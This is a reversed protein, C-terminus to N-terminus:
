AKFILFAHKREKMYHDKIQQKIMTRTRQSRPLQQIPNCVFCTVAGKFVELSIELSTANFYLRNEFLLLLLPIKTTTEIQLKRSSGGM